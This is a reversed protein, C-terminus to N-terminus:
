EIIGGILLIKHKIKKMMLSVSFDITQKHNNYYKNLDQIKLNELDYMLNEHQFHNKDNLIKEFDSHPRIVNSKFYYKTKFM